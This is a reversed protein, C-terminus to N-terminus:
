RHTNEQAAAGCVVRECERERVCVCVCLCLSVCVCECVRETFNDTLTHEGGTHTRQHRQVCVCM